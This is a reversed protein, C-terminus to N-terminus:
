RSEEERNYGLRLGKLASGPGPPNVTLFLVFAREDREPPSVLFVSALRETFKKHKDGGSPLGVPKLSGQDLPLKGPTFIVTMKRGEHFM